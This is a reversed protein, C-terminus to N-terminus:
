PQAGRPIPADHNLRAAVWPLLRTIAVRSLYYVPYAVYLGTLLSGIVVTNNFGLWPGLPLSYAAAFSAQLPEATLVILGLKHAFPAIWSAVCAVFAASALAIGKNVRLSFLLVCLSLAILNDKPVLGIIMGLTMGAALESPAGHACLVHVIRRLPALFDSLM